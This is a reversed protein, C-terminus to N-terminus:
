LRPPRVRNSNSAPQQPTNTQPRQIQVNRNNAPPQSEVRQPFSPQQRVRDVNERRIAREQGNNPSIGPQNSEAQRENSPFSQVRSERREFNGDQNNQPFQQRRIVRQSNNGPNGQPVQQTNPNRQDLGSSQDNQPTQRTRLGGSNNRELRRDASGFPEIQRRNEANGNITNSGGEASNVGANDQTRYPRVPTSRTDAPQRDNNLANRRQEFKSKIEDMTRVRTPSANVAANNGAAVAPRYARFQGNNNDVRNTGPRNVSTIAVPRIRTHTNQEVERYDPGRHYYDRNNYSNYNNIVTINNLVNYNNRVIHRNFNRSYMYNNPVCTWYNNPARWNNGFSINIGPALPAWAYYNNSQGWTVWAPAWEYGPVWAWGLAPDNLWRGYHFPAWGWNYDSAWAWGDVTSVWHGNTEYPRFSADGDPVWVYGYGPYDVWNGYPQLEDYFTQYTVPRDSYNDAYEYQRSVPTERSSYCGALTLSFFSILYLLKKM